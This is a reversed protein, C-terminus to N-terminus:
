NRLELRAAELLAQSDYIEVHGDVALGNGLGSPFTTSYNSTAYETASDPAPHWYGVHDPSATPWFTIGTFKEALYVVSSQLSSVRRPTEGWRKAVLRSCTYEVVPNPGITGTPNSPCDYIGAEKARTSWAATATDGGPVVYGGVWDKRWWGQGGQGFNPDVVPFYGDYDNQYLSFALGIQRMTSACTVTRAVDRAAQLAPLLIAILLSIISIVVLLEILTFAKSQSRRM